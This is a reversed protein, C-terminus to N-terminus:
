MEGEVSDPVVETPPRLLYDAGSVVLSVGGGLTSSGIGVGTETSCCCLLSVFFRPEFICWFM